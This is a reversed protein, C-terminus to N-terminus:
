KWVKALEFFPLGKEEDFSPHLVAYSGEVPLKGYLEGRIKGVTVLGTSSLEEVLDKLPTIFVPIGTYYGMDYYDEEPTGWFFYFGKSPNGKLFYIVYDGGRGVVHYSRNTTFRHGKLVSRKSRKNIKKIKIM